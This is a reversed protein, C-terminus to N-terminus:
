ELEARQQSFRVCIKHYGWGSERLLKLRFYLCISSRGRWAVMGDRTSIHPTLTKFDGNNGDIFFRIRFYDCNWLREYTLLYLYWIKVKRKSDTPEEYCEYDFAVFKAVDGPRAEAAAVLM